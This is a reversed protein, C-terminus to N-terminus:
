PSGGEGGSAAGPSSPDAPADGPTLGLTGAHEQFLNALQEGSVKVDTMIWGHIVSHTEQLVRVLVDLQRLNAGAEEAAAGLELLADVYADIKPDELFDLNKKEELERARNELEEAAAPSLPRLREAFTRAAAVQVDLVRRVGGEPREDRKLTVSAVLEALKGYEEETQALEDALSILGRAAFESDRDDLQESIQEVRLRIARAVIANQIQDRTKQIEGTYVSRFDRSATRLESLAGTFETSAIKVQPNASCAGLAAVLLAVLCPPRVLSLSVRSTIPVTSELALSYRGGGGVCMGM